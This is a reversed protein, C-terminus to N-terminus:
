AGHETRWREGAGCVRAGGIREQEGEGEPDTRLGRGDAEAAAALGGAEDGAVAVEKEVAHDDVGGAQQEEPAFGGAACAEGECEEAGAPEGRKDGASPMLGDGAVGAVDEDVTGGGVGGVEGGDAVEDGGAVGGGEGAVAHALREVGVWGREYFQERLRTEARQERGFGARGLSAGVL